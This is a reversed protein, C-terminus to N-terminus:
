AGVFEIMGRACDFRFIPRSQENEPTLVVAKRTARGLMAMFALLERLKGETLGDPRLDFEIESEQLFHSALEVGAVDFFLV